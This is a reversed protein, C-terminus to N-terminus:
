YHNGRYSSNHTNKKGRKEKYHRQKGFMRYNAHTVKVIKKFFM